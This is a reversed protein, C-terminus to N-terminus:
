LATIIGPHGPGPTKYIGTLCTYYVHKGAQKRLTAGKAGKVRVDITVCVEARWDGITCMIGYIVRLKVECDVTESM